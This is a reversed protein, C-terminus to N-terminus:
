RTEAAVNQTYKTKQEDQMWVRIFIYLGSCWAICRPSNHIFAAGYIFKPYLFLHAGRHIFNICNNWIFILGHPSSVTSSEVITTTSLERKSVKECVVWYVFPFNWVYFILGTLFYGFVNVGINIYLFHIFFNKGTFIKFRQKSLFLSHFHFHKPSFQIIQSIRM